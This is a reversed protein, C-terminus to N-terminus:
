PNFVVPMRFIVCKLRSSFTKKLQCGIMELSQLDKKSKEFVLKNLRVFKTLKEVLNMKKFNHMDETRRRREDKQNSKEEFVVFHHIENENMM